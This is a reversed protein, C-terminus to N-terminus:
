GPSSEAEQYAGELTERVFAGVESEKEARPGAVNLIKIHHQRLFTLLQRSATASDQRSLHLYPKAKKRACKVTLQSGGQLTPGISFIVTGDSDQVNCPPDSLM